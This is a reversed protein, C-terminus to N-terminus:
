TDRANGDINDRDSGRKGQDESKIDGKPKAKAKPKPAEGKGKAKSKAKAEPADEESSTGGPMDSFSSSDTLGPM